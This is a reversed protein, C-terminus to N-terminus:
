YDEFSKILSINKREIINIKDNANDSLPSYWGQSDFYEKLDKSRFIYGKNAFIENRILRLEKKSYQSLDEKTLLKSSAFGYKRVQNNLTDLQIQKVIGNDPIIYYKYVIDNRTCDGFEYGEKYSGYSDVCSNDILIWSVLKTEILKNDFIKYEQFSYEPIDQPHDSGESLELGSLTQHKVSFFKVYESMSVGTSTQIIMGIISDNIYLFRSIDEKFFTPAGENPTKVFGSYKSILEKSPRKNNKIVQTMRKFETYNRDKEQGSISLSFILVIALFIYKLNMM